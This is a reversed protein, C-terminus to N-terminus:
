IEPFYEFIHYNVLQICTGITRITEFWFDSATQINSNSESFHYTGLYHCQGIRRFESRLHAYISTANLVYSQIVGWKVSKFPPTPPDGQWLNAASPLVSAFLEGSPMPTLPVFGGKLLAAVLLEM